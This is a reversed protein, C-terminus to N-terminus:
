EDLWKEAEARSFFVKRKEQYTDVKHATSDIVYKAFSERQWVSAVKKVNASALTTQTQKAADPLGLLNVASFDALATFGPKTVGIAANLDNSLGAIGAPDLLDGFFWFYIRNKPKEVSIRYNTGSGIEQM